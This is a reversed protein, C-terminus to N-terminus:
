TVLEIFFSLFVAILVRLSSSCVCLKVESFLHVIIRFVVICLVSVWKQLHRFVCDNFFFFFVKIWDEISSIVEDFVM